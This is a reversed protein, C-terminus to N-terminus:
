KLPEFWVDRACAMCVGSLATMLLASDAVDALRDARVASFSDIRLKSMSWVHASTVSIRNEPM